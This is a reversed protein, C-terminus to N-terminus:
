SIDPKKAIYSDLAARVMESMSGKGGQMKDELAFRRFAEVQDQYIEFAYRTITRRGDARVGTRGYPNPSGTNPSDTKPALPPHSAPALSRSKAPPAIVPLHDMPSGLEQPAHPDFADIRPQKM